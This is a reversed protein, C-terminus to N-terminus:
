SATVREILREVIPQPLIIDDQLSEWNCSYDVVDRTVEPTSPMVDAYSSQVIHLVSEPIGSWSECDISRLEDFLTDSCSYTAWGAMANRKEARSLNFNRKLMAEQTRYLERVYTVGDRVPDWLVLRDVEAIRVLSRCVLLAGGRVGLIRVLRCGSVDMGEQVALAIDEIWAAITADKLEGHSDGTGRYDFRLVHQGSNAVAIAIRRLAGYTRVLDNFLPPCIVTLVRGMGNQPPHYSGFLQRDQPGFFFSEHM